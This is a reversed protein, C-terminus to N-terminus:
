LPAIIDICFDRLINDAHKVASTTGSPQESPKEPNVSSKGAELAISQWICLRDIHVDILMTLHDPKKTKASKDKAESTESTSVAAPLGMGIDEATSALPQLALVELIVIMQLQTERIRLESIRHKTLDDRSRGPAGSEADDDHIAWWRRILVDEIPYLGTKGPKMKKNGKRKKAKGSAQCIDEGSHDQIDILAIRSPVGDRYKKDILTTSMVLSELFTIYDSLDLTSDYDLHFAARARSLPGKAFYAM